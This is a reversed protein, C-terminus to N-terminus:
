SKVFIRADKLPMSKLTKQGFSCNKWSKLSQRRPFHPFDAKIAEEKICLEIHQSELPLFPIYHSILSSELLRSRHFGTEKANFSMKEIVKEFNRIRLTDRTSNHNLVIESIDRGAVNSLFIFLSKKFDVGDLKDHYDIYPKVVDLLGDPLDEVEDFIFLQRACQAVNSHIEERLSKKYSQLKNKDPYDRQPVKLHVFQSGMGKRYISEAILSSVHNKGTGTRGHFSLVLARQPNEDHFFGHMIVPLQEEAIHQGFLHGRFAYHLGSINGVSIWDSNCAEIESVLSSITIPQPLVVTTIFQVFVLLISM